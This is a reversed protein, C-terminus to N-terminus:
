SPYDWAQFSEAWSSRLRRRLEPSPEAHRARRYGRLTRLYDKLRQEYAATWELGLAAYSEALTELPTRELAEFRIEHLRGPPIASRAEFYAAYLERYDEVVAAELDLRYRTQLRGYALLSSWLGCTSRFVEFPDRAIHLFRAEPFLRLLHRIRATQPPSKLLLPRDYRVTLKRVFHLLGAEWRALEADSVDRLTLFRRFHARQRPFAWTLYPSCLTALAVAEEEEGAVAVNQPMEDMPRTRRLLRDTLAAEIAETSLFTHPHWCQYLNPYAFQGDLGVLRHLLTTGSRWHGLIFLPPAVGAREIAPGFRRAERRRAIATRLSLAGILAARPLYPSDVPFRQERLFRWWDAADLGTLPHFLYRRLWELGAQELRGARGGESTM